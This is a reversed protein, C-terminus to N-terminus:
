GEGVSYIHYSMKAVSLGIPDEVNSLESSSVRVDVPSPNPHSGCLERTKSQEYFADEWALV